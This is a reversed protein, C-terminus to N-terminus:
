TSRKGTRARTDQYVQTGVKAMEEEIFKDLGKRIATSIDLEKDLSMLYAMKEKQDDRLRVGRTGQGKLGRKM